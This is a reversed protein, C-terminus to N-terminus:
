IVFFVDIVIFLISVFLSEWRCSVIVVNCGVVRFRFDVQTVLVLGFGLDLALGFALGLAFDLGFVWGLGLDFADITGARGVISITSVTSMSANESEDLSDWMTLYARAESLESEFPLM